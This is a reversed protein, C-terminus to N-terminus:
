KLKGIRYMGTKCEPCTGKVADRGNKMKVAKPEVMNRKSRCKVCYAEVTQTISMGLEKHSPMFSSHSYSPM